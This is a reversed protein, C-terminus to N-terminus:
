SYPNAVPDDASPEAETKPVEVEWDEEDLVEELLAALAETWVKKIAEVDNWEILNVQEYLIFTLKNDEKIYLGHEDQLIAVNEFDGQKTLVRSAKISM